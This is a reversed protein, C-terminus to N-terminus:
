LLDLTTLIEKFNERTPDVPHLLDAPSEREDFAQFLSMKAVAFEEVESLERSAALTLEQRNLRVQVPHFDKRAASVDFQYESGSQAVFYYEYVYGSQASYSKLRRQTGSGSRQWM